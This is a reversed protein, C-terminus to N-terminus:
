ILNKMKFKQKNTMGLSPVGNIIVMKTIKKDSKSARDLM